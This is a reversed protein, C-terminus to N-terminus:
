GVRRLGGRSLARDIADIPNPKPKPDFAPPLSEFWRRVDDRHAILRKGARKAPLIGKRAAARAATGFPQADLDIWEPDTSAPTVTEIVKALAALLENRDTM